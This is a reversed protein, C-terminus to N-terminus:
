GCIDGALKKVREKLEVKNKATFVYDFPINEWEKESKHNQQKENLESEWFDGYKDLRIIEIAYVQYNNRKWYFYENLFRCDTIVVIDTDQQIRDELKKIWIDKDIQERGWETGIFQLLVRGNNDKEGNWGKEKAFEKLKDAYALKQVKKDYKKYLYNMLYSGFTDKGHRARGSINIIKPKDFELNVSYEKEASPGDVISLTVGGINKRGGSRVKERAM